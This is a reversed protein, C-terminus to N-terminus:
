LILYCTYSKRYSIIQQIKRWKSSSVIRSNYWNSNQTKEIKRNLALPISLYWMAVYVSVITQSLSLVFQFPILIFGPKFHRERVKYQQHSLTSYLIDPKQNRRSCLYRILQKTYISTQLHYKQDCFWSWEM